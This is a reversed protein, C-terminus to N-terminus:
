VKPFLLYLLKFYFHVSLLKDNRCYYKFEVGTNKYEQSSYEYIFLFFPYIYNMYFITSFYNLDFFM